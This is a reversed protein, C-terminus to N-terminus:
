DSEVLWFNKSIWNAGCLAFYMSYQKLESTGLNQGAKTAYKKIKEEV